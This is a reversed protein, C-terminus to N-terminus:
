PKGVPPHIQVNGGSLIGECRAVEVQQADVVVLQISDPDNGKKGAPEGGDLLYGYCSYNAAHNYLGTCEFLLTDELLGKKGGPQGPGTASRDECAVAHIDNTHFQSGALPGDHWNVEFAGSPPPGINGGFTCIKKGSADERKVEGKDFGGTTVWCPREVEENIVVNDVAGSGNLVIRMRDVGEIGFPLTNVGNDGVATIGVTSPNLTGPGYFEFQANFEGEDNDVYTASNVTVSRTRKLPEFDFEIYQGQEDADDPDDILKDNNGDVLDEAVIAVNGLPTDNKYPAGSEGGAGAGPGGFTQNPTGLDPDQGSCNAPGGGGCSSDFVIASNNAFGAGPRFGFVDVKGPPLGTAGKGNSVEDIITGAPLGEFNIEGSQAMPALALTIAGAALAAHTVKLIHNMEM